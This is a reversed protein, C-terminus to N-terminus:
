AHEAEPLAEEDDMVIKALAIVQENAQTKILRVGQTNRGVTNIEQIRTRVLTGNNTILMVEDSDSVQLAAVAAGNRESCKINMVGLGGRGKIPYDSLKSRKGYGNETVSLIEGEELACMSIVRAGDRLNMGRVGASNRGLPRVKSEEFRIARGDSSFLMINQAGHTIAVDILEDDERLKIAIKGNRNVSEYESLVTKKVVGQRTAFFLYQHESYERIPLISSLREGEELALLNVIPRGKAGRSALPIDYAKLRYVKGKSSFCLLTDHAKAILLTKICDEDKMSTASKGKGGRRQAEYDDLPQGKVYGEYSLTIVREEDAILDEANLHRREDDIQTRRTDNFQERIDQLEDAVVQNLRQYDELIALLRKIEQTQAKFEEAIKAQELGTLRHLRLDLIAQSQAPSLHYGDEHLGYQSALGDPRLREFWESASGHQLDQLMSATVTAQWARALLAEKAEQSGASAKILEIMAEINNLAVSLGELIHARERAKRLEHLSRRTIVERRHGLFVQLAERLGLVKPQGGVLATMNISYASELPTAQFLHNLIVEPTENRRLEIVVRIGDKDSEDRLASIGELRKSKILEGIKVLVNSKLVQYPMEDVIISYRGNDEEIHTKARIYIKGHGTEYAERIGKAGNIIGGTPFDPGQVFQMLDDVNANPYALLHLCADLLEGLHHPPINTAMGVAIGSSGNLLLHPLRAPLVQPETQSGDYNPSFDVTEKELDSLLSHAIRSMRAETYRHAAPADGDISGFNGQGDVLPYRLSFDQAMRVLTLYIASDGHPHYKGMVDGVITASKVYKKNWVNGQKHMSYLVRRHVPKLGDRADPLARGVIVSMAYDLYSRKMEESLGIPFVEKAFDSM